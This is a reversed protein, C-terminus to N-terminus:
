LLGRRGQEARTKRGHCRECRVALNDAADTGGDQLPVIHDVHAASGSVVRRCDACTFADRILIQRRIEKWEATLYHAREKTSASALRPPRWRGLPAPM